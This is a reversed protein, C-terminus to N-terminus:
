YAPWSGLTNPQFRLQLSWEYSRVCAGVWGGVCAFLCLFVCVFMHACLFKCVCFVWCDPVYTCLLFWCFYQGLVKFLLLSVLLYLCVRARVRVCVCVCLCVICSAWLYVCTFISGDVCWINVPHSSTPLCHVRGTFLQESFGSSDNCRSCCDGAFSYM